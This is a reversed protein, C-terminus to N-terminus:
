EDECLNRNAVPNPRNQGLLWAFTGEHGLIPLFAEDLINRGGMTAGFPPLILRKGNGAFCPRRLVHGNARVRAAPKLAGAIEHTCPGSRPHHRFTMGALTLESHLAGGWPHQRSDALSAAADAASDEGVWIWQRGEQMIRLIELNADSISLAGETTGSMDDLIIITTADFRDIAEALEVLAAKVEDFVAAGGSAGAAEQSANGALGIDSVILASRAPWFLAGSSDAFFVRGCISIPQGNSATPAPSQHNGASM